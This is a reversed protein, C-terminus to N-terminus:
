PAPPRVIDARLELDRLWQAITERRRAAAARERAVGQSEQFSQRVGNRTFEEPHARYYELAVDDSVPLSSGFRQDLYAQIRLTDRALREVEGDPLGYARVVADLSGARGAMRAVEAAVASVPPEQPPFRAVESLLLRREIMQRLLDAESGPQIVGLREAAAIDSQYVISGGVRAAVRDVLRQAVLISGAAAIAVCAMGARLSCRM